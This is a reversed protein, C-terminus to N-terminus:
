HGERERLAAKVAHLEGTLRMVQEQLARVAAAYNSLM